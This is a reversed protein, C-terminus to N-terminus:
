VPAREPRPGGRRRGLSGPPDRSVGHHPASEAATRASAACPDWAPADDPRPDAPRRGGTAWRTRWDDDGTARGMLAGYALQLADAGALSALAGM